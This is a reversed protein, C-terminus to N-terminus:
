SQLKRVGHSDYSMDLRDYSSPGSYSHLSNKYLPKCHGFMVYSIHLAYSDGRSTFHCM